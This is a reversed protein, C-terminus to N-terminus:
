LALTDSRKARGDVCRLRDHAHDCVSGLAAASPASFPATVAGDTVSAPWGGAASREALQRLTVEDTVRTVKGEIVLDLDSLSVTVACHANERLNGTKRTARGSTFYLKGDVWQAGVRAPMRGTRHHGALVYASRCWGRTPRARAVVATASQWLHRSEERGRGLEEFGSGREKFWATSTNDAGNSKGGSLWTRARVGSCRVRQSPMRRASIRGLRDTREQFLRKGKDVIIPDAFLQVQDVLNQLLLAHLLTASGLIAIDKGPQRKLERLQEAVHSGILTTNRWEATETDRQRRVKSLQEHFGGGSRSLVAGSTPRALSCRVGRLDSPGLLLGDRGNLWRRPRRPALRTTWTLVTGRM